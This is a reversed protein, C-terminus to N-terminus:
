DKQVPGVPGMWVRSLLCGGRHAIGEGAPEDAPELAPYGLKPRSEMQIAAPSRRPVIGPAPCQRDEKPRPPHLLGYGPQQLGISPPELFHEEPQLRFAEPKMESRLPKFGDRPRQLGSLMGKLGSLEPEFPFPPHEFPFLLHQLPFLKGELLGLGPKLFRSMGKLSRRQAHWTSTTGQPWATGSERLCARM